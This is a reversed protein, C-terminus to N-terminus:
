RACYIKDTAPAKELGKKYYLNFHRDAYYGSELGDYAELIDAYGAENFDGLYYSYNTDTQTNTVFNTYIAMRQGPVQTGDHLTVNVFGTSRALDQDRSMHTCTGAPFANTLLFLNGSNDATLIPDIFIATKNNTATNSSDGFYNVFSYHWTEGNDDSYSVLTDINSSDRFDRWRADM